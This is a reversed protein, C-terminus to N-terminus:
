DSGGAAAWEVANEVLRLYNADDFAGPGHGLQIFVVRSKEYASVWALPGDSTEEDTSLLVDNTDAIRMGGYTEDEIEFAEPLGATVPHEREVRVRMEVDHRFTSKPWGPEPAELYKAGVLAEYWPWDQYGVVAHHLVVIGKGSEAFERFNRRRKEDVETTMDYLVALDFRERVDRAFARPHPDVTVAWDDHDLVRHFRNDYEHGGTVLLVRLRREEPPEAGLAAVSLLVFVIGRIM